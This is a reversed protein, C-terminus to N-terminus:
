SKEKKVAPNPSGAEAMTQEDLLKKKADAQSRSSYNSNSPQEKEAEPAEPATKTKLKKRPPQVLEGPVGDETIISYRSQAAAPPQVSTMSLTLGVLAALVLGFRTNM